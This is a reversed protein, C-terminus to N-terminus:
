CVVQASYAAFSGMRKKCIVKTRRHQHTPHFRPLCPQCRPRRLWPEERVPLQSAHRWEPPRFFRIASKRGRDGCPGGCVRRRSRATLRSSPSCSSVFCEVLRVVGHGFLGLLTRTSAMWRFLLPAPHQANIQNSAESHRSRAELSRLTKGAKCSQLRARTGWAKWGSRGTGFGISEARDRGEIADRFGRRLWQDSVSLRQRQTASQGALGLLPGRALAVRCGLGVWELWM